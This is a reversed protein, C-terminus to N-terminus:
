AISQYDSGVPFQQQGIGPKAGRGLPRWDGLHDGWSRAPSGLSPTGESGKEWVEPSRRSHGARSKHDAEEQASGGATGRLEGDIEGFPDM